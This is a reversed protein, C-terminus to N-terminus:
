FLVEMCFSIHEVIILRYGMSLGLNFAYSVDFNQV